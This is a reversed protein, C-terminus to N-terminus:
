DGQNIPKRGQFRLRENQREVEVRLLTRVLEALSLGTEGALAKWGAHQEESCRVFIVPGNKKRAMASAYDDGAWLALKKTAGGGIRQWALPM